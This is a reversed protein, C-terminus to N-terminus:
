QAELVHSIRRCIKGCLQRWLTSCSAHRRLGPSILSDTGPYSWCPGVDSTRYFQRRERESSDGAVNRWPECRTRAPNETTLLLICLWDFFIKASKEFFNSLIKVCYKIRHKWSCKRVVHFEVSKLLQSSVCNYRPLKAIKRMWFIHVSYLRYWYLSLTM